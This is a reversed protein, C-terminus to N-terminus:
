FYTTHIKFFHAIKFLTTISIRSEGTEYKQVQASTIKLFGGVDQLTLRNLKRILRLKQGINVFIKEQM